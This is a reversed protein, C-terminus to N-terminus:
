QKPNPHRFPLSKPALVFGWRIVSIM